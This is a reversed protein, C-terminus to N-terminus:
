EGTIRRENGARCVPPRHGAICFGQKCRRDLIV